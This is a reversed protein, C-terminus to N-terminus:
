KDNGQGHARASALGDRAQEWLFTPRLSNVRACQWSAGVRVLCACADFRVLSHVCWARKIPPRLVFLYWSDFVLFWSGLVWSGLYRIGIGSSMRSLGRRGDRRRGVRGPLARTRRSDQAKLRSGEAHSLLSSSPSHPRPDGDERAVAGHELLSTPRSARSLVADMTWRRDEDGNAM